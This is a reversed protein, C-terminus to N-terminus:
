GALTLMIARFAMYGGLLILGLFFFRRFLDQRLRMRIAQGVFMGAFAPILAFLSTAALGMQFKGTLLLGIALAFSSITFALGLSQIMDERKLNLAAYYPAVPLVSIGTAGMLIGTIFGILPSLWSESSPKIVIRAATLGYVGYVVLVTGLAATVLNTHGSTIFGVGVPTGLCIGILLTSFRKALIKFSPGAFLQWINTILSPLVLMAAAEVPPIALGLIGIAFTPLGMGLVGKIIGAAIFIVCVILIVSISDFM